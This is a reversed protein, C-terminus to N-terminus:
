KVAEILFHRRWPGVAGIHIAAVQGDRIAITSPIATTAFNAYMDASDTFQRLAVRHELGDWYRRQVELSDLSMAYVPTAPAERRLEAVLDMWRPMNDRCAPCKDDYLLVIANRGTLDMTDLTGAPTRVSLHPVANRTKITTPGGHRTEAGFSGRRMDLMQGVYRTGAYTSYLAVGALGTLWLTAAWRRVRARVESM